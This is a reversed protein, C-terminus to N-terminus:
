QVLSFSPPPWHPGHFSGTMTVIGRYNGTGPPHFLPAARNGDGSPILDRGTGRGSAAPLALPRVAAREGGAAGEDPLTRLGRLRGRRSWCRSAEPARRRGDRGARTRRRRCRRRRVGSLVPHRLGAGRAGQRDGGTEAKECADPFGRVRARFVFVGREPDMALAETEVGWDPHEERFWVLRYAVPLYERGGQVRILHRKVDFAM